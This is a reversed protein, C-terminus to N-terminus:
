KKIRWVRIGNDQEHATFRYGKNRIQFYSASARVSAPKAYTAPLFFSDGIKMDRFPYKSGIRARNVPVPVGQEIKIQTKM